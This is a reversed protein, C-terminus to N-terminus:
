WVFYCDMVSLAATSQGYRPASPLASCGQRLPLVGALPYVQIIFIQLQSQAVSHLVPKRIYQQMATASRWYKLKELLKQIASLILNSVVSCLKHMEIFETLM